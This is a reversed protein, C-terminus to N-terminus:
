GTGKMQMHRGYPASAIRNQGVLKKGNATLDAFWPAVRVPVGDKIIRKAGKYYDKAM